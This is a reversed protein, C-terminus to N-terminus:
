ISLIPHGSAFDCEIKSASFRSSFIFVHDFRAVGRSIKAAVPWIELNIEFFSCVIAKSDFISLRWESGGTRRQESGSAIECHLIPELVSAEPPADGSRGVGGRIM